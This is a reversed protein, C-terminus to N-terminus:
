ASAAVRGGARGPRRPARDSTGRGQRAVQSETQEEPQGAHPLLRPLLCFIGGVILVIGGTWLLSVLPNVKVQLATVAGGAEWGALTVYLDQRWTSTIAVESNPQESKDYFRRQPRLESTTGDPETVRVLAEVATFNAKRVEELDVFEITRGAVPKKEGPRFQVTQDQSFISSGIVGIVVLLMGVHVLQGGYRRHNADIMRVLALLVNERTGAMRYRLARVLDLVIAFLAVTTVAATLLAWPNRQGKVIFGAVVLAAAIGPVILSRALRSAAQAGYTLMPGLAMLAVLLLGLPAVVKNYFPPGVTVERGAVLRSIVPFITGILTLVTMGVLLVNTALFM